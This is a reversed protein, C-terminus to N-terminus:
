FYSTNCNKLNKCEQYPFIQESHHPYIKETFVHAVDIYFSKLNWENEMMHIVSSPCKKLVNKGNNLIWQPEMYSYETDLLMAEHLIYPMRSAELGSQEAEPVKDKHCQNFQLLLFCWLNEIAISGYLSRNM